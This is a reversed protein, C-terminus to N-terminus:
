PVNSTDSAIATNLVHFSGLILPDQYLGGISPGKNHPCAGFLDWITPFLWITRM